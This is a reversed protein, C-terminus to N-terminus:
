VEAEAEAASAKEGKPRLDLGFTKLALHLFKFYFILIMKTDFIKHFIVKCKFNKSSQNVETIKLSFTSFISKKIM